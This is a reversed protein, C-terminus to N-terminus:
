CGILTPVINMYSSYMRHFFSGGFFARDGNVGDAVFQLARYSWM